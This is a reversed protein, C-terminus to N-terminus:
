PAVCPRIVTHMMATSCAGVHGPTDILNLLYDEGKHRYVLSATQAQVRLVPPEASPPQSASVNLRELEKIFSHVLCKNETAQLGTRICQIQIVTAEWVVM